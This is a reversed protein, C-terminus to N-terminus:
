PEQPSDEKIVDAVAIVGLLRDEKVFFLPTKGEEALAEAQRKQKESIKCVKPHYIEYKWWLLRSGHLSATLGNGPLAQFDSVEQQESKKGSQRWCSRKQWRISM